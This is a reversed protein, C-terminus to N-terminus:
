GSTGSSGTGSIRRRHRRGTRRMEAKAEPPFHEAVYLKGLADGMLGNVQGLAREEIPPM